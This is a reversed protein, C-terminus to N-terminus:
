LYVMAIIPIEAEMKASVCINAIYDYIIEISANRQGTSNLKIPKEQNLENLNVGEEFVMM